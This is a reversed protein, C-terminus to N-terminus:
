QRSAAFCLLRGDQLALLIRGHRDVALGWSVPLEPLSHKWLVQGDTLRLAQLSATAPEGPRAPDHSGAVLLANATVALAHIRSVPRSLWRPKVQPVAGTGPEALAVTSDHPGLFALVDGRPTMLTASSVMRYDGKTSYLPPGSATVQDGVVFLDSGARFQTHSVPALPDTLCKGSALDYSAVAVMNGGALHLQRNYLLLHGNVSVGAATDRHLSGSTGNHWRLKGSVADLAYLHTGDHNAMGAAAYVVGDQVLVGSGVPWTSRLSGYLPIFREQPAARFRWLLRGTAAELAYIWGDASGLYLRGQWLAPPYNIAGGTFATWRVAGTGAELARVSGDGGATFVLDGVAIPGTAPGGTRPTFTWALATAEPVAVRSFATRQNDARLTPWDSPDAALPASITLQGQQLRDAENVEAAFNFQGAPALAVVGIL